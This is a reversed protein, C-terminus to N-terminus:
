AQAAGCFLLRAPWRFKAESPFRHTTTDTNTGGTLATNQIQKAFSPFNQIQTRPILLRQYPSLLDIDPVQM